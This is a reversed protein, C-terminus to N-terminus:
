SSIPAVGVSPDLTYLEGNKWLLGARTVYEIPIPNPGVPWVSGKRWALGYSTVEGITIRGDSPDKDAPHGSVLEITNAGGVAFTQGDVSGTGSFQKAGTENPPPTVEYSVTRPTADFFPGWKARKNVPDYAGGDSVAGVTWGAPPSDEIAYVSSTTPPTAKLTVTLKVEASYFPPLVREVSSPVAAAAITITGDAYTQVLDNGLPDSVSKPAPSGGFGLTSSGSTGSALFSIKLLDFTGAKASQGAPLSLVVGLKGIAVLNPNLVLGWNPAQDALAASRYILRAPDFNLSFSLANEDGLATMKISATVTGGSPVSADDVQLRRASSVNALSVVAVKSTVSGASNSVVVTYDGTDATQVSSLTLSATSANALPAGHKKWQYNM